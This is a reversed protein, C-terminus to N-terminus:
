RKNETKNIAKKIADMLVPIDIPKTLHADMGAELSERKDSEFANASLAIIPIDAYGDIRRIERAASRGDMVPMQIDMLVLAYEDPSATKLTEVAIQGNAASDTEFGLDNLIETEIELNIENDEVILIKKGNLIAEASDASEDAAPSSLRLSVTVTFTSGAGLKSKVDISGGLLEIFHKAITLGLGTGYVGSATTNKEREFPEFIRELADEAIGVGTDAVTFTFTAFEKSPAIRQKVSIDVKGGNETYKVANSAIHTLVQALKHADTNVDTREVDAVDLSVSINKRAAEDRVAAYVDNVIAVVNCEDEALSFDQSEMYSLELVKDVLDLIQKGALEIKDLYALTESMGSCKKALAIYGFIANLPTRMDHSMNSLFANKAVDATKANNLAQELLKKQKMEQLVEKDVNRYGMVIQAKGVNVMRLQIYQLEGKYLCRYNIYFSSNPEKLANRLYEPTTFKRVREKDEPHVWVEVYDELFWSLERVQLKHDFQKVLRMSLRYPLVKDADLDAYLISDYNISLGEIVELRQLHEQRILKRERDYEQIINQLQQEKERSSNIITATEAMRRTVKETADSIFVYYFNGAAESHIYHGYDEVWRVIGDKRTIRYEVYDLNDNNGAIQATISAEVSELDGPHVIGKFSGHTHAMFDAFDDCDFIKILAKNAYVIQEDDDANYILFGGPIEDIFDKIKQATDFHEADTEGCTNEAANMLMLMYEVISYEANESKPEM